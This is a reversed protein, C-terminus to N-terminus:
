QKQEGQLFHYMTRIMRELNKLPTYLKDVACSSVDDMKAVEMVRGLSSTWSPVTLALSLIDANPDHEPDEKIAGIRIKRPPGKRVKIKSLLKTAAMSDSLLGPNSKIETSIAMIGDVESRAIKVTDKISIILEGTLIKAALNPALSIIADIANAYTGCRLVTNVAMGYEKSLRERTRLSVIKKVTGNPETFFRPPGDIYEAKKLASGKSGRIGKELLYRKGILYRRMEINIDQRLLQNTCIWAIAENKNQMHIYSITFPISNEVCIEYRNHGDLITRNWVVIPELCGNRLLDVELQKKAINSISAIYWKFGSDIKLEHIAKAANIAANIM